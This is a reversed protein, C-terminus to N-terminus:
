RAARIPSARQAKRVGPASRQINMGAQAIRSAEIFHEGARIIRLSAEALANSSAAINANVALATSAALRLPRALEGAHDGGDSDQDFRTLVHDSCAKLTDLIRDLAELAMGMAQAEEQLGKISSRIDGAADSLLICFRNVAAEAQAATPEAPSARQAQIPIEPLYATTEDDTM